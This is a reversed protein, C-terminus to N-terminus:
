ELSVACGGICRVITFENWRAQGRSIKIDRFSRDYSAIELGASAPNLDARWDVGSVVIRSSERLPPIRHTETISTPRDSKKVFCRM